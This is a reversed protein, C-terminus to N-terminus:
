RDIENEKIDVKKILIFVSRNIELDVNDLVKVSPFQKSIGLHKLILKM